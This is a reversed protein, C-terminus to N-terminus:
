KNLKPEIFFRDGIFLEVMTLFSIILYHIDLLERKYFPFHFNIDHIFNHRLELIDQLTPYFDSELQIYDDPDDGFIFKYKKLEEFFKINLLTSFVRDIEYLNQFNYTAIIIEISGIKKKKIREVETLTFKNDCTGILKNSDIVKEKILMLLLDRFFVEFATVYNVLCLKRAESLVKQNKTASYLKDLLQNTRDIKEILNDFPFEMRQKHSDRQQIAKEILKDTSLRM